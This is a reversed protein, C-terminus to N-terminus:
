ASLVGGDRGTWWKEAPHCYNTGQISGTIEWLMWKAKRRVLLLRTAQNAIHGSWFIWRGPNRCGLTFAVPRPEQSLKALLITTAYNEPRRGREREGEEKTKVAVLSDQVRVQPSAPPSPLHHCWGSSHLSWGSSLFGFARLARSM